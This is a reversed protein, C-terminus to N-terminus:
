SVWGGIQKFIYWRGEKKKLVLLGGEGCLWGCNYSVDIVAQTQDRDFGVDSLSLIGGSKPYKKYYADWGDVGKRFINASETNSLFIIGPSNGLVNQLSRPKTDNLKFSKLANNGAEGDSIM